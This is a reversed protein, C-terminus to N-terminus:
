IRKKTENNKKYKSGGGPRKVTKNYNNNNNHTRIYMYVYICVCVSM